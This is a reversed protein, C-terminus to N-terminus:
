EMTAEGRGRMSPLSTTKVAVYEEGHSPPPESNSTCRKVLSSPSATGAIRCCLKISTATRWAGAHADGAGKSRSNVSSIRVGSGALTRAKPASRM